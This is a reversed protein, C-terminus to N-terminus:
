LDFVLTFENRNNRYSYYMESVSQHIMHIGMGGSDLSEFEKEERELTPDFPIGDDSFLVYLKSGTKECLFSLNKAGSYTIINALVEDCSLLAKRTEPTNGAVDFVVKKVEEFSETKPPITIWEKEYDTHYLVLVAMDDFQEMENCFDYIVKSLDVITQRAVDEGQPADKVANLLREEGFFESKSNLAETIGDTYLLIGESPALTLTEDILDADEFLGLVVGSDPKLLSSRSNILVPYTHGANAYKLVGTLPNFVGAFVSAFLGEPNQEYLSANAQNLAEAPSLGAKMKERIMTKAMAMFIAASIGKGSVDGILICVSNKDRLFCDYFDGSVTRAPQTMASINYGDGNLGSEHPVLGFQIKKAVDLQVHTQLREKTLHELNNVYQSIDDTMKEYSAVIEGIEDNRSIGLPEPKQSTDEAFKKMSESISNIPNLIQKQVLLLLILFGIILSLLFPIIDRLFDRYINSVGWKMSFGLAIFALVNGNEDLFPTLYVIVKGYQDQVFSRNWYSHHNLIELEAESAPRDYFSKLAFREQLVADTEPNLASSLVYFRENTEPNLKYIIIYDLHFFDCLARTTERANLYNTSDTSKQLDEFDWEELLHTLSRACYRSLEESDNMNNIYAERLNAAASLIMSITLIIFFSIFISTRISKKKKM